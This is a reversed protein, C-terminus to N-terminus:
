AADHREARLYAINALPALKAPEPVALYQEHLQWPVPFDAIVEASAVSCSEAAQDSPDGDFEYRLHITKSPEDAEISAQRLQVHVEGLLARQLSLLLSQRDSINGM